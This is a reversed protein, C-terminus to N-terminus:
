AQKFFRLIERVHDLFQGDTSLQSIASKAERSLREHDVDNTARLSELEATIRALDRRSEEALRAQKSVLSDPNEANFEAQARHVDSEMAAVRTRLEVVDEQPYRWGNGITRLRWVLYEYARIAPRLITLLLAMASAVYGLQSFGTRALVFLVIASVIHLGIAIRLSNKELKKVYAVQGEDVVLGRQRTPEVDALIARAKFHVNWPVTVIALLWYLSLLGFVWDGFQGVQVHLSTMVAYAILLVAFSIVMGLLLPFLKM